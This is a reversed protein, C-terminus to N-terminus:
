NAPVGAIGVVRNEKSKIFAFVLRDEAGKAIIKVVNRILDRHQEEQIGARALRAFPPTWTYVCWAAGFGGGHYFSSCDSKLSIHVRAKDGLLKEWENVASADGSLVHLQPVYNPPTASWRLLRPATEEPTQEHEDCM